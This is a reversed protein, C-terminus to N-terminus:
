EGGSASEKALAQLRTRGKEDSVRVLHQKDTGHECSFTYCGRVEGVFKVPKKCGAYSDNCAATASKDFQGGSGSMTLLIVTLLLVIYRM